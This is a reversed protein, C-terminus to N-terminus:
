EVCLHVHACRAKGAADSCKEDGSAQLSVRLGCSTGVVCLQALVAQRGLKKKHTHIYLHGESNM